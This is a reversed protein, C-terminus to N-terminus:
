TTSTTNSSPKPTAFRHPTGIASRHGARSERNSRTANPTPRSRPRLSRPSSPASPGPGVLTMDGRLVNWVQPLEDIRTLRLFRGVRTVRADGVLAWAAGNKEADQRMSRFKYIRFLRGNLGVRYQSYLNSRSFQHRIAFAVFPVVLVIGLGFSLAFAIDGIRKAVSYFWGRDLRYELPALTVAM